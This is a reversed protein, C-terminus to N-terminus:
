FKPGDYDFNVINIVDSPKYGFKVNLDRITNNTDNILKTFIDIYKKFLEKYASNKNDVIKKFDDHFLWLMTEAVEYIPIIINALQKNFLNKKERRHLNSQATKEDYENNIYKIRIDRNKNTEDTIYNLADARVYFRFNSIGRHLDYLKDINIKLEPFPVHLQYMFTFQPIHQCEAGNNGRNGRRQNYLELAEPNNNFFTHAHPNHIVGKEIAGTIWSFATGCSTCFMQDCGNIKSIFEGCSPCPKAEKKIMKFTEIMEPNCEHKKSGKASVGGAKTDDDEDCEEDNNIPVYCKRCIKTDCIECINTEKNLFGKCDTIPCPYTYLSKKSKTKDSSNEVIIGNIRNIENDLELIQAKLAAKKENIAAIKKKNSIHQVTEPMLSLERTWLIKHRHEKYKGFVWKEGFKNLFIDYPITSRCAHNMCHADNSSTLLYTKHCDICNTFKCPNCTFLNRKEECCINCLSM